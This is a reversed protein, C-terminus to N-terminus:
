PNQRSMGAAERQQRYLERWAALEVETIDPHLIDLLLICRPRDSHNWAEHEYSHDFWLCKGDEWTRAEGAVRLACGPPVDIGLHCTLSTNPGDVHPRLKAGPLMCHFALQGTPSFLHEITALARCSRPLLRQAQETFQGFSWVEFFGWDKGQLTPHLDSAPHPVLFAPDAVAATYEAIIAEAARELVETVQRTSAFDDPDHWPRATLGPFFGGTGDQRPDEPHGFGSQVSQLFARVRQLSPHNLDVNM